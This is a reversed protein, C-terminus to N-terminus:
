QHHDQPHGRGAMATDHHAEGRGRGRHDGRGGQRYGRNDSRMNDFFPDKVKPPRQEGDEGPNGTHYNV